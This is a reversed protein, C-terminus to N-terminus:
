LGHPRVSNSVVSCLVAAAWPLLCVGSALLLLLGSQRISGKTELAPLKLLWLAGQQGQARSSQSDLCLDRM